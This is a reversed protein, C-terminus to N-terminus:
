LYKGYKDYDLLGDESGIINILKENMVVDNVINMIEDHSYNTINELIAIADRKIANQIDKPLQNVYKSMKNLEKEIHIYYRKKYICYCIAYM